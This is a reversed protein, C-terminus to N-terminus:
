FIDMYKLLCLITFILRMQVWTRESNYINQSIVYAYIYNCIYYIYIYILIYGYIRICIINYVDVENTDM